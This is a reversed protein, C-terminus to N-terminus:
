RNALMLEPYTSPSMHWFERFAEIWCRYSVQIEIEIEIEQMSLRINFVVLARHVASTPIAIALPLSMATSDALM